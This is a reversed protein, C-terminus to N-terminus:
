KLLEQLLDAGSALAEQVEKIYQAKLQADDITGDLSDRHAREHLTMVDGVEYRFRAMKAALGNDQQIPPFRKRFSDHHSRMWRYWLTSEGVATEFRDVDDPEPLAEDREWRGIESDSVGCATAVQWQTLKARTRSIQLDKGTCEAM